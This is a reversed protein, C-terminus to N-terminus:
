SATPSAQPSYKFTLGETYIEVKVMKIEETSSDSRDTTISFVDAGTFQLEFVEKLSNDLVTLSGHLPSKQPVNNKIALQNKKTLAEFFPKADAEPVYFALNPTDVVTPTKSPALTGGSHYEVINQKVTFSDIKTVRRCADAIGDAGQIAFRFNCAKWSKQNVTNDLDQMVPGSGQPTTKYTINEVALTVTMYAPGKDNADLKPFTFEKILAATFDQRARERYYFDGAIIAGNKRSPKGNIFNAIWEFFSASVAMGAQLKIDDFKPKALQRYRAFPAPGGNLQYTAVETKVAGGEISKLVGVKTGDLDLAFHAAAYTRNNKSPDPM